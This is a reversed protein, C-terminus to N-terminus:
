IKKKRKEFLNQRCHVEVIVSCHNWFQKSIKLESPSFRVNHFKKQPCSIMRAVM